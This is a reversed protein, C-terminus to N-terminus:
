KIYFTKQSRSNYAPVALSIFILLGLSVYLDHILKFLFVADNLTSREPLKLISFSAFLSTSELICM